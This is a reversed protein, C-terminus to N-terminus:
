TGIVDVAVETLSPGGRRSVLIRQWAGLRLRGDVVPVALAAPGIGALSREGFRALARNLDDLLGAENENLVLLWEPELATVLVRGQDIAAESVERTVLATVDVFAQLELDLVHRSRHTRVRAVKTM